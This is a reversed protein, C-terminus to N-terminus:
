RSTERMPNTPQIAAARRRATDASVELVEDYGLRRAVVASVEARVAALDPARTGLKRAMSTMAIGKLGCPHIDDFGSLDPCVNLAFGHYSVWRRVAIGISAIKEGAVWVGTRAEIREGALGWRTLSDILSQEIERLLRHTDHGLAALDAIVYGVLQGPGHWTVDGGRTVEVIEVGRDRIADAEFKLNEWGGARGITLVPPHDPFLLWDDSEGAARKEVLAQQIAVGERYPTEGLHCVQLTRSM